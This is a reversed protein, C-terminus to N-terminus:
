RFLVQERSFIRITLVLSLMAYVVASTVTLILHAAESTGELLELIVLAQGLIPVLFMWLPPILDSLFGVAMAPVMVICMIPTVYSQAEKFNRAFICVILQVAALMGVLPIVM